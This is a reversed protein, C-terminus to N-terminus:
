LLLVIFVEEQRKAKNTDYLQLWFNQCKVFAGKQPHQSKRNLRQISLRHNFEYIWMIEEQKGNLESPEHKM